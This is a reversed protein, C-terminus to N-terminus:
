ITFIFSYEVGMDEYHPPLPPTIKLSGWPIPAVTSIVIFELVLPVKRKDGM